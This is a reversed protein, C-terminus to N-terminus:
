GPDCHQHDPCRSQDGSDSPACGGCGLGGADLTLCYGREQFAQEYEEVISALAVAAVVRVGEGSTQAHYSVKAKDVDFPLSKRMRFRVVSEAEQHNAPLADFDLLVVRVAADPLVAVVDHTRGGVASLAERVCRAVDNRQRLNSEILDPVLSGVPLERGSYMEVMDGKDSIRGALVRDASIECALKPRAAAKPKGSM